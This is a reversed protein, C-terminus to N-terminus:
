GISKESFRGLRVCLRGAQESGIRDSGIRDSGIRDSGIWDLGIWDLGIWDLGIRIVRSRDAFSCLFFWSELLLRVLLPSLINMKLSKEISSNM